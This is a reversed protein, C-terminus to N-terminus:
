KISRISLSPVFKCNETNLDTKIVDIFTSQRTSCTFECINQMFNTFCSPCRSLISKAKEVGVILDNIKSYFRTSIQLITNSKWPFRHWLTHWPHSLFPFRLLLLFTSAFHVLVLLPNVQDINCCTLLEDGEQYNEPILHPCWQKLKAIGLEDLVKAPGDYACNKIKAKHTANRHCVGYWVCHGDDNLPAQGKLSLFRLPNILSSAM